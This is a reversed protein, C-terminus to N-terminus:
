IFYVAVGVQEKSGFIKMIIIGIDGLAFGFGVVDGPDGGGALFAEGGGDGNGIGKGKGKGM